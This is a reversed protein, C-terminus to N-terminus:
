EELQVVDAGGPIEFQFKAPSINEKFEIHHFTIRTEDGYANRTSVSNAIFTNTDINLYIESLDLEKQRPVLKLTYHGPKRAAAKEVTFEEKILEINSLFSAGKGNGFYMLADGVIVQNDAPRYIWLTKGDTIIAHADPTEYEWRMMGPHKFWVRGTATDTIDMAELTSEQVFEAQVDAGGYQSELKEIIEDKTMDTKTESSQCLGISVIALLLLGCIISSKLLHM